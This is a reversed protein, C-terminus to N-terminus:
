TVGWERAKFTVEDYLTQSCDELKNLLLSLLFSGSKFSLLKQKLVTWLSINSNTAELHIMHILNKPNVNAQFAALISLLIGRLTWNDLALTFSNVM